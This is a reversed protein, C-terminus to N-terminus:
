QRDVHQSLLLWWHCRRITLSTAALTGSTSAAFIVVFAIQAISMHTHTHIFLLPAELSKDIAVRAKATTTHKSLEQEVEMFLISFM